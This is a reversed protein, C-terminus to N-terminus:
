HVERSTPINTDEDGLHGYAALGLIIQETDRDESTTTIMSIGEELVEMEIIVEYTRHELSEIRDLTTIMTKKFEEDEM